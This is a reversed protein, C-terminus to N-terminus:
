RGLSAPWDPSRGLVAVIRDLASGGSWQVEPAFSAGPALRAEGQPVAEAVTLAVQLVEAGFEVAAGGLARAVDWSHVVYDVLHFGVALRASFPRAGVEPLPFRRGLVGEAAFADLVHRASRRYGEVADGAPRTGWHALDGDGTSAAAFGYHQATMHALLDGVTWGACPTPRGLDGDTVRAVVEVSGLVAQADLAILDVGALVGDLEGLTVGKNTHM